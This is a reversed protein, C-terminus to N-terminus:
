HDFHEDWADKFAIRREDVLRKLRNLESRNFGEADALGVPDLWFKAWREGSEVHIHAPEHGENSFFFFRYNRYREVTPM